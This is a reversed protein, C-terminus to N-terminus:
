MIIQTQNIMSLRNVGVFNSKLFYRYDNTTNKNESKTKHENWYVSIEFRKSLRKTVKQNDKASLTVVPVYLKTYKITSIINDDKTNVNVKDVSNKTWILNLEVKCNILTMELSRWFNSVYKLPVADTANKLIGINNNLVPPAVTEWYNLRISSLNLLM